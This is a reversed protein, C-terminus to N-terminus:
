SFQVKNEILLGSFYKQTSLKKRPTYKRDNDKTIKKKDTSLESFLFILMYVNFVSCFNSPMHKLVVDDAHVRYFNRLPLFFYREYIIGM